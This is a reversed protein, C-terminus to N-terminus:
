FSIAYMLRQTPSVGDDSRGFDEEYRNVWEDHHLFTVLVVVYRGDKMMPTTPTFFFRKQCDLKKSRSRKELYGM